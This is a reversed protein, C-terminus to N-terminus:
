DQSSKHQDGGCDAAMQNWGDKSDAMGCVSTSWVIHPHQVLKIPSGDDLNTAESREAIIIYFSEGSDLLPCVMM